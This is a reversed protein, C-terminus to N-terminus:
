IAENGTAHRYRERGESVANSLAEQGRELASKGQEFMERGQEATQRVKISM